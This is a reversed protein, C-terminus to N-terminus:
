YPILRRVRQRTRHDIRTVIFRRPNAAFEEILSTKRLPTSATVHTDHWGMSMRHNFRWHMSALPSDTLVQAALALTHVRFWTSFLNSKNPPTLTVGMGMHSFPEDARYVFGGDEMQKEVVSRVAARLSTRIEPRRYDVRKYLNVLIDVADVDECAGGGGAPHFGGDGHQLQLTVDILRQPANLPRAESYYALLQHYGGCMAVFNSCYGNTGWLGTTPDINDDLWRFVEEVRHEAEKIGCDDRLHILLQLVFLLNNGELWADRWDRVSLWDYLVDRRLFRHAFTLPHRPNVNLIDLCPLVTTALHMALHEKDHKSTVPIPEELEPGLFLGTARDQFSLIYEAWASRFESDEPLACLYHLTMLAYCSAYLNPAGTLSYRYEGPRGTALGNVFHAVRTRLRQVQRASTM